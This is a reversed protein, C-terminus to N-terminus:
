VRVVFRYFARRCAWFLLALWLLSYGLGYTWQWAAIPQWAAQLLVLPAQWPHVYVLWSDWQMLYAIMPLSAAATYAMSPLLYENISDYRVVVLFGFLCFLGSTLAVGLLLPLWDVGRGFAYLTFAGNELIALATLTLVKAALYEGQRLPTVIQATLTGEAKELLVLGGLFYFTGVVLNSLIVVPFIWTLYQTPIQSLLGICVVVIVLSAYYFGNRFQLRADCLVTAQLRTM